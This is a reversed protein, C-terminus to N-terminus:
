PLQPYLQPGALLGGVPAFRRVWDAAVEAGEPRRAIAAAAARRGLDSYLASAPLSAALLGTAKLPNTMLYAMLARDATGSNAVTPTMMTKAPEALDQMLAQGRAFGSKNRSSDLAKVASHLQAPSFVGDPAGVSSAARQPRLFNAWGQNIKKLEDAFQPAQRQVMQRLAHQAEQLAKGLQRQDYDQSRLYGRSIQGLNSEAAKLGEAPLIGDKFRGAVENKLVRVFQDIKDKPLNQVQQGIQNFEAVLQQDPTVQGIKSLVDDYAAGLKTQAFDIAQRGALGAPLKENIPALARNIAARNLSVNAGQQGSRVIDGIFPLSVAKEEATKAMGGLLQGPTPTVGEKLLPKAAKSAAPSIVRALGEMAPAAVLGAGAGTAAAVAKDSWFSEPDFIPQLAGGISGTVASNVARQWLTAGKLPGKAGPVAMVMATNGLMRPLDVGSQGQRERATQYDAESQAVMQNVPGSVAEPLVNAAFQAGGVLPDSVGKAARGLVDTRGRDAIYKQFDGGYNQQFQRRQEAVGQKLYRSLFGLPSFDSSVPPAEGAELQKLLDPDTVEGGELAQLLAPDTIERM